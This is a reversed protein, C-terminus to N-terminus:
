EDFFGLFFLFHIVTEVFSNRLVVNIISLFTEQAGCWILMKSHNQFSWTVSFVPRIVILKAMVPIFFM